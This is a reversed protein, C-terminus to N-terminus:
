AVELAVGAEVVEDEDDDLTEERRGGAEEEDEEVELVDAAVGLVAPVVINEAGLGTTM